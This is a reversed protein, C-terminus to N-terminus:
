WAPLCLTEGRIDTFSYLDPLFGVLIIFLYDVSLWSLPLSEFPISGFSFNVGLFQFM